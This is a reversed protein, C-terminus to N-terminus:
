ENHSGEVGGSSNVICRINLNRNERYEYASSASLERNGSNALRGSARTRLDFGMGITYNCDHRQCLRMMTQIDDDEYITM